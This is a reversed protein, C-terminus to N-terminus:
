LIKVFLIFFHFPMTGWIKVRVNTCYTMYICLFSIFYAKSVRSFELINFFANFSYPSIRKFENSTKSDRIASATKKDWDIYINYYDSYETDFGKYVWGFARMELKTIWSDFPLCEKYKTKIYHKM